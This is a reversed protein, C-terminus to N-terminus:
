YRGLLIQQAVYKEKYDYETAYAMRKYDLIFEVDELRVDAISIDTGISQCWISSQLLDQYSWMDIMIAFIEGVTPVQLTHKLAFYRYAGEVYMELTCVSIENRSM